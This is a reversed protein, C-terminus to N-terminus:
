FHGYGLLNLRNIIGGGFIFKAAQSGNNAKMLLQERNYIVNTGDSLKLSSSITGREDTIMYINNMTDPITYAFSHIGVDTTSNTTFCLGNVNNFTSNDINFSDMYATIKYNDYVMPLFAEDLHYNGTFFVPWLQRFKADDGGFEEHVQRGVDYHAFCRTTLGFQTNGLEVDNYLYLYYVSNPAYGGRSCITSVTVNQPFASELTMSTDSNISVIRRGYANIKIVDDVIFYDNFSANQSTLTVNVGNTTVQLPTSVNMITNAYVTGGWEQKLDESDYQSRALAYDIRYSVQGSGYVSDIFPNSMEMYGKPYRPPPVPAGPMSIWKLGTPTTTDVSLIKGNTDVPLRSLTNGSSAVLLDGKVYQKHGTGGSAAEIANSAKLQNVNIKDAILLDLNQAKIAKSTNLVSTYVPVLKGRANGHSM